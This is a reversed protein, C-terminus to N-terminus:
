PKWPVVHDGDLTLALWGEQQARVASQTDAAEGLALRIDPRGWMRALREHGHKVVDFGASRFVSYTVSKDAPNLLLVGGNQPVQDLYAQIQNFVDTARQGNQKMLSTKAWVATVHGAALLVALSSMLVRSKARSAATQWLRGLGIGVLVAVFPVCNYAYTEGAHNILAAPFMACCGFVLMVLIFRRQQALLLGAGVALALVATSGVVLAVNLMQGSKIWVFTNLTSVPVLTAFGMMAVNALVNFGINSIM